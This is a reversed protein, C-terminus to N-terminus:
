FCQIQSMGAQKQCVKFGQVIRIRPVYNLLRAYSL